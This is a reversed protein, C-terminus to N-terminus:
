RLVRVPHRVCRLKYSPGKEGRTGIVINYRGPRPLETFRCRIQNCKAEVVEARVLPIHKQGRRKIPKELWIGEDPRSPDITVHSCVISQVDGKTVLDYDDLAENLVNGIWLPDGAVPNKAVLHNALSASLSKRAKVAGRVYLGADGPDADRSPLAASLKPFFSVLGFDLRNGLELERRVFSEINDVLTKARYGDSPLGLFESLRQYLESGEYVTRPIVEAQYAQIGEGPANARVKLDVVVKSKSM